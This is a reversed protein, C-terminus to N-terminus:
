LTKTETLKLDPQGVVDPWYEVEFTGRLRRIRAIGIDGEMEVEDIETEEGGISLWGGSRIRVQSLHPDYGPLDIRVPVFTSRVLSGLLGEESTIQPAYFRKYFAEKEREPDLTAETGWYGARMWDDRARLDRWTAFVAYAVMLGVIVWGGISLLRSNIAGIGLKHSFYMAGGIAGAGLQTAVGLDNIRATKGSLYSGRSSFDQVGVGFSWLAGWGLASLAKMDAKAKLVSFQAENQAMRAVIARGMLQYSRLQQVSAAIGVGTTGVSMVKMLSSRESDNLHEMTQMINFGNLLVTLGGVRIQIDNWFRLRELSQQYRRGAQIDTYPRPEVWEVTTERPLLRAAQVREEPVGALVMVKRAAESVRHMVRDVAPIGELFQGVRVLGKELRPNASNILGREVAVGTMVTSLMRSGDDSPFTEFLSEVVASLGTNSAGGGAAAGPSIFSIIDPHGAVYRALRGTPGDETLEAAIADRGLQCENLGLICRAAASRMALYSEIDNEDYIDLSDQPNGAGDYVWWRAAQESALRIEQEANQKNDHYAAIFEARAEEDLIGSKWREWEQVERARINRRMADSYFAPDIGPAAQHQARSSIREHESWILVDVVDSAWMAHAAQANYDQWSDMVRGLLLSLETAIGIPDHLAVALYPNGNAATRMAATSHDLGRSEGPAALPYRVPQWLDLLESM